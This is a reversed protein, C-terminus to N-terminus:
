ARGYKGGKLMEPYRQFYLQWRDFDGKNVFESCSMAIRGFVDKKLKEMNEKWDGDPTRNISMGGLFQEVDYVCFEKCNYCTRRNDM